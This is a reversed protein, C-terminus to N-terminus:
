PNARISQLAEQFANSQRVTPNIYNWRTKGNYEFVWLNFLMLRGHEDKPVDKTLCVEALESYLETPISREFNFQEQKIAYNVDDATVKNHKRTAATLFAQATLRMLQRVHGGSAKALELLDQRSEFVADIDIRQEILSAVAKIGVDNYELDCRLRELKYINVM